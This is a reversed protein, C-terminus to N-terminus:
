IVDPFGKRAHRFLLGGAFFAAVAFALLSAAQSLSPPEGGLIASRYGLVAYRAPNWELVAGFRERYFAEPLFVPTAWFWGILIIRLVHATDRLYVHLAAAIWSLGLTLLALLGLWVTLLALSGGPVQGLLVAAALLVALAILHGLATSALISAPIAESPFVTRRILAAHETLSGASRSLTESLLLWPLLGSLLFLPYSGTAEESPLRAGFAYQFLFTYVGLLVLPHVVVWLWGLISGVFRQRFDRLALQWLLNAVARSAAM